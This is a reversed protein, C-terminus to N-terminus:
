VKRRRRAGVFCLLLGAGMFLATSPEPAGTSAPTYNFVVNATAQVSDSSSVATLGTNSQPTVSLFFQTVTNIPINFTGVGTYNGFTAADSDVLPGASNSGTLATNSLVGGNATITAPGIGVQINFLPAAFSFGALPNALSYNTSITGSTNTDDTPNNNTLTISGTDTGSITITVSNLTAGAVNFNGCTINTSSFDANQPGIVGCNETLTDAWMSGSLAMFAFLGLIVSKRM